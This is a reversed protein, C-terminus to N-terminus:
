NKPQKMELVVMFIINIFVVGAISLMLLATLSLNGIGLGSINMVIFMMMLILPATILISIYVDMFTGALDNYKQRELKYDTMFNQSKKELYNGLSGGSSINTALGSFLEALKTNSTQKSSNKLATVLDYGYFETQNIVKRIEMGVNPYESSNAIIKLIKTPEVNSGAIASMHITAFPLEQMIKKQVSGKEISPYFYFSTLTLFIVALPTLAWILSINAFIILAAMIILSLFFAILSVFLAVSIYASALFRINAKKLDDGIDPIQRALKESTKSFIRSSINALSSPKAELKIEKKAQLKKIGSLGSESIQLEKIFSDKDQKNVTIFRTEKTIPSVYTLKVINPPPTKNEQPNLSKVPSVENLLAPITNNIIRLQSILANLSSMYFNKDGLKMNEIVSSIDLIIRKEQEINKKLEELM